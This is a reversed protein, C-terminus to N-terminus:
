EGTKIDFKNKNFELVFLINQLQGYKEITDLKYQPTNYKKM